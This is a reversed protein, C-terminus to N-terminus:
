PAGGMAMARDRAQIKAKFIKSRVVAAREADALVIRIKRITSETEPILVKEFLNVRQTIRRLAHELIQLRRGTMNRDAVRQAITELEAVLTDVWHPKGLLSYPEVATELRELVPVRVGVINQETTEAGSIGLISTLDLNPNALMPLRNAAQEVCADLEAEQAALKQRTRGVEATLQRRKLDLSPLMRQYVALQRRLRTLAQKNTPVQAM